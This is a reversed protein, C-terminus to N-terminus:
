VQTFSVPPIMLKSVLGSRTVYALWMGDVQCDVGYDVYFLYLQLFLFLFRTEGFSPLLQVTFCCCFYVTIAIRQRLVQFPFLLWILDVQFLDNVASGKQM